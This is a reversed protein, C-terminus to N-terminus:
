EDEDDDDDDDDDNEEGFYQVDSDDLESPDSNKNITEEIWPEMKAIDLYLGPYYDEACGYGGLYM